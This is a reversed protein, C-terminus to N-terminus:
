SGIVWKIPLPLNRQKKKTTRLFMTALLMTLTIVLYFVLYREFTLTKFIREVVEIMALHGIYVFLSSQGLPVLLQWLPWTKVKESFWFVLFVAGTSLIIFGITPPYFMEAYGEREFYTTTQWHMALAGLVTLALGLLLFRPQSFSTQGSDSWRIKAMFVGLIIFGMWPFIPFWGDVFWMQAIRPMTSWSIQSIDNLGISIPAHSYGLAGQLAVATLWICIAIALNSKRGIKSFLYALPIGVGILYLVDVELFPVVGFIVSDILAACLILFIGRKVFYYLKPSDSRLGSYAVMMGALTVFLPAAFSCYYRFWLAHPSSLLSGLNAGIMSVIAITRVIDISLDRKSEQAM